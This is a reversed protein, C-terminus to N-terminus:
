YVEIDIFSKKKIFGREKMFGIIALTDAERQSRGYGTYIPMDDDWFCTEYHCDEKRQKIEIGRIEKM